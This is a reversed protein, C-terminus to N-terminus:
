GHIEEGNMFITEEVTARRPYIVISRIYGELANGQPDSGLYIKTGPTWNAPTNLNLGNTENFRDVIQTNDIGHTLQLWRRNDYEFIDQYIVVPFFGAGEVELNAYRLLEIRGDYRSHVTLANNDNDDVITVVPRILNEDHYQGVNVWDVHLTVASSEWWEEDCPIVYGIADRTRTQGRTPLYPSACPGKEFQLGWLYGCIEQEGKFAYDNENKEKFFIMNLDTVQGIPHSMTFECRYWGDALEVINVKYRTLDNVIMCANQQLDYVANVTIDSGTLDKWTIALYRCNVGKAFVSFTKEQEFDIELDPVYVTHLQPAADLNTSVTYVNTPLAEPSLIDVDESPTLNCNITKVASFGESDAIENTRKGFCAITATGPSYDIGGYDRYSSFLVRGDPGICSCIDLSIEEDTPNTTSTPSNTGTANLGGVVTQIFHNSMGVTAYCAFTPDYTPAEGPFIKDFLEAHAEPDQEHERIYQRAGKISILLNENEPDKMEDLSAVRLTQFLCQLYFEKSGTGGQDLYAQYLVDAVEKTFTSLDTRHPNNDDAIHDQILKLAEAVEESNLVASLTRLQILLEAPTLVPIPKEPVEKRTTSISKFGSIGATVQRGDLAKRPM